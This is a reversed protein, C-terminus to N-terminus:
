RFGTGSRPQSPDSVAQRADPLMLVALLWGALGAVIPAGTWMEIVSPTRGVTISAVALYLAWTVFAASAGFLWFAGRRGAAPRLWRALLDVLVATFAFTLLISSNRAETEAGALAIAPLWVLTTTWFPLRWRRALFLVPALLVINSIILRSALVAASQQSASFGDVIWEARYKLADGYGLFLLVQAVAMGISLAAPWFQRLTPAAPIDPDSWMARLPSTVIIVMSAGLGLHSPSFLINITTEIGWLTHWVGDAIGSLGFVALAIVTWGYGIPIAAIGSRGQRVNRLVMVCVWAATATFGSYFVAHWPTFFTELDTLNSHAWADLTLGALLWGSLVTMVVNDRQSARPRPRDQPGAVTRLWGGAKNRLDLDTM